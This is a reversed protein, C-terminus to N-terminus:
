SLLEVLLCGPGSVSARRVRLIFTDGNSRASHEFISDVACLFPHEVFLMPLIFFPLWIAVMAAATMSLILM